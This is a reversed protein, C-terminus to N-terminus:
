RPLSLGAISSFQVSSTKYVRILCAHFCLFIFTFYFCVFGFILLIQIYLAYPWHTALLVYYSILVIPLQHGTRPLHCFFAYIHQSNSMSTLLKKILQSYCLMLTIFRALTITDSFREDTKAVGRWVTFLLQKKSLFM